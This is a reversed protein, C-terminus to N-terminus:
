WSWAVAGLAWNAAINAYLNQMIYLLLINMKLLSVQERMPSQAVSAFRIQLIWFTINLEKNSEWFSRFGWQARLVGEVQLSSCKRRVDTGCFWLMWNVIAFLSKRFTANSAFSRMIEFLAFDKRFPIKGSVFKVCTDLSWILRSPLWIWGYSVARYSKCQIGREWQILAWEEGLDEAQLKTSSIRTSPLLRCRM